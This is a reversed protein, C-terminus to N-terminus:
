QPPVKAAAHDHNGYDTSAGTALLLLGLGIFASRAVADATGQNALWSGAAARLGGTGGPAFGADNV